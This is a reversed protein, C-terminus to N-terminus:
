TIRHLTVKVLVLKVSLASLLAVWLGKKVNLPARELSTFFFAYTNNSCTWLASSGGPAISDRCTSWKQLQERLALRNHGVPCSLQSVRVLCPRSLCHTCATDDRAEQNLPLFFVFLCVPKSVIPFSLVNSLVWHSSMLAEGQLFSLCALTVTPLFFPVSNFLFRLVHTSVSTRIWKRRKSM